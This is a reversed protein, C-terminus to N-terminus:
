SFRAQEFAARRSAAIAVGVAIVALSVVQMMPARVAIGNTISATSRGDGVTLVLVAAVWTAALGVAVPVPDRWTTAAITIACLALSPLVWGLVLGPSSSFPIAALVGIPLSVALVAFGRWLLLRGTRAPTALALEGVPEVTASYSAAIGALPLLPALLLMLTLGAGSLGLRDLVLPVLLVVTLALAGSWRLAPSGFTVASLPHRRELRGLMRHRTASTRDIADAIANWTPDDIQDATDTRVQQGLRQRCAACGVVHSELSTASVPDLTSAVYRHLDRDPVHWTPAPSTM